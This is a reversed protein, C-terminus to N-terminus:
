MHLLRPDITPQDKTNPLTWVADAPASFAVFEEDTMNSLLNAYYVPDFNSDFAPFVPLAANSGYGLTNYASALAPQHPFTPEETLFINPIAQLEPLPRSNFAEFNHAAPDEPLAANSGYRPINCAPASAPQHSFMPEEIMFLNLLDQTEPLSRPIRAEMDYAAPDVPLAANSGYGLMNYAPRFTPTETMFLRDEPLAANSGYGLNNFAPAPAPQHSYTPEDIMRLNPLAQLEPLSRSILAEIDHDASDEAPSDSPRRIRAPTGDLKLGTDRDVMLHALPPEPLNAPIVGTKSAFHCELTHRRRQSDDSFRRGCGKQCPYIRGADGLHASRIHARLHTKQISSHNCPVVANDSTEHGYYCWFKLPAGTARNHTEVHREIDNRRKFASKCGNIPCPHMVVTVM